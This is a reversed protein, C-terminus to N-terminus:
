LYIQGARVLVGSSCAGVESRGTDDVKGAVAPAPQANRYMLCLGQRVAFDVVVFAMWVALAAPTQAGVHLLVGCLVVAGFLAASLAVPATRYLTRIQEGRIRDTHSEPAQPAPTRGANM